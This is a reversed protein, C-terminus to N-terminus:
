QAPEPVRLRTWNKCLEKLVKPVEGEYDQLVGHWVGKEDKWLAVDARQPLEIKTKGVTFQKLGGAAMAELTGDKALRVAAVGIADFSVDQGNVQITKQIPDGAPDTAGSTLIVTGDIM